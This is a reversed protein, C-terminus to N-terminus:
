CVGMSLERKKVIEHQSKKGQFYQSDPFFLIIPSCNPYLNIEVRLIMCIILIQPTRINRNLLNMFRLMPKPNELSLGTGTPTFTAEGPNLGAGLVRFLAGV